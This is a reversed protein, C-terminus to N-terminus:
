VTEKSTLKELAAFKEMMEAQTMGYAFKHAANYAAGYPTAPDMGWEDGHSLPMRKPTRGRLRAKLDAVTYRVAPFYVQAQEATETGDILYEHWSPTPDVIRGDALEIWGHEAIIGFRSIAHGEVYAAGPTTRYVSRLGRLANWWCQKNMAAVRESVRASEGLDIRQGTRNVIIVPERAPNVSVM